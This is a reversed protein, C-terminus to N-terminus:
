KLESPIVRVYMPKRDRLISLQVPKGISNENLLKHLDDISDVPKENFAIIIDNARLEINYASTDPEVSQILIGSKVSLKLPQTWPQNLPVVQGAIGIFGRRVKGDMILKGVVYKALNSAVAFCLGQAPLIVATNVGIVEGNSNVLPGGSNGPNLAADTQIVDDILRGSESRLTRGLASVVGATLSYQFGYPNGIAIAVQGVQLRDSDGFSITSLKEANVQVVALDTAPDDGVLRAPLLRGDQLNVEIKDAGNVVHSNTVIFGDTSIIFGSGAGGSGRQPRGNRNSQTTKTVRIQVVADSVKRAVQVVTRSYADLLEDDKHPNPLLREESLDLENSLFETM